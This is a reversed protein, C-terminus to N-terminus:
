CMLSYYETTIQECNWLEKLVAEQQIDPLFTALSNSHHLSDNCFLQLGRKRFFSVSFLFCLFLVLSLMTVFFHLLQSGPFTGRKKNKKEREKKVETIACESWYFM